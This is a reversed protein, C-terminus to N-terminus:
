KFVLCLNQYCNSLKSISKNSFMYNYKIISYIFFVWIIKTIKINPYKQKKCILIKLYFIKLMIFVM